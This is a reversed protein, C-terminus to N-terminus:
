KNRKANNEDLKGTATSSDAAVQVTVIRDGLSDVLGSEVSTDLSLTLCSNTFGSAEDFTFSPSELQVVAPIATHSHIIINSCHFM